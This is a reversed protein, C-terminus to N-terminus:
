TGSELHLYPSRHRPTEYQLELMLTQYLKCGLKCCLERLLSHNTHGAFHSKMNTMSIWLHTVGACRRHRRHVQATPDNRRDGAWPQLQAPRCRVKLITRHRQDARVYLVLLYYIYLLVGIPHERQVYLDANRPRASVNGQRM